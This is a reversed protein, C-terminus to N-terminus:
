NYRRATQARRADRGIDPDSGHRHHVRPQDAAHRLDLSRREVNANVEPPKRRDDAGTCFRTDDSDCQM